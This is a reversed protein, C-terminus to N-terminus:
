KKIWDWNKPLRKPREIEREVGDVLRVPDSPDNAITCLTKEANQYCITDGVWFVREQQTTACSALLLFFLDKAKM